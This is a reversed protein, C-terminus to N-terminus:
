GANPIERLLANLPKGIEVIEGCLTDLAKDVQYFQTLAELRFMVYKRRLQNARSSADAADQFITEFEDWFKKSKIVWTAEPNAHWLPTIQLKVASWHLQFDQMAEVSGRDVDQDAAALENEISQWMDHESVQGQLRPLLEHLGRLATRLMDM